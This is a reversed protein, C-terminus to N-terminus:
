RKKLTETPTPALKEQNIAQNYQIKFLSLEQQASIKHTYRLIFSCLIQWIDYLTMEWHDPAYHQKYNTSHNFQKYQDKIQMLKAQAPLQANKLTTQMTLLQQLRGQIRPNNSSKQQLTTIYHRIHQELQLLIFATTPTSGTLLDPKKRVITVFDEEKMQKTLRQWLLQLCNKQEQLHQDKPAQAQKKNIDALYQVLNAELELSQRYSHIDTQIYTALTTTTEDITKKNKLIQLIHKLEIEKATILTRDLQNLHRLYSHIIMELQLLSTYTDIMLADHSNKAFRTIALDDKPHRKQYGHLQSNLATKKMPLTLRAVSNQACQDETSHDFLQLPTTKLREIHSAYTAKQQQVFALKEKTSFILKPTTEHALTKAIIGAQIFFSFTDALQYFHGTEPNYASNMLHANYARLLKLDDWDNHKAFDTHQLEYVALQMMAERTKGRYKQELYQKFRTLSSLDGKRLEDIFHQAPSFLSSLALMSQSDDAETLTQTTAEIENFCFQHYQARHQKKLPDALYQAMAALLTDILPRIESSVDQLAVLHTLLPHWFPKEQTLVTQFRKLITRLAQQENTPDIPFRDRYKNFLTNFYTDYKVQPVTNITGIAQQIPHRNDLYNDMDTKNSIQPIDTVTMKEKLALAILGGTFFLELAYSTQNLQNILRWYTIAELDQPTIDTSLLEYIMLPLHEDAGLPKAENPDVGQNYINQYKHQFSNYFDLPATEDNQRIRDLFSQASNKELSNEQM